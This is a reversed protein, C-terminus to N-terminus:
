TIRYILVDHIFYGNIINSSLRLGTASSHEKVAIRLLSILFNNDNIVTVNKLNIRPKDEPILTLISQIQEYVKKPGNLRVEPSAFILRWINSEPIFFWLSASIILKTNGLLNTLMAGAEIMEESLNEKVVVEKAM